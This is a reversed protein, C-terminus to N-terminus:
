NEAALKTLHPCGAAVAQEMLEPTIAPQPKRRYRIIADKPRSAGDNYRTQVNPTLLELDFQQLLLAVIVMMENNAFNMGTCKHIGGGFGTIAYRHHKDEERGPAFRLPDFSDPNAFVDPMNHGLTSSLLALWGAPIRYEGIEIEEEVYRMIMDASPHMRTTEHVAWLVHNLEGLTALDIPKGYPLTRELEALVRLLYSPHRVLEVITWAAQGVTTEHGAFMLGMIIGVIVEDEVPRGDKYTATAFEQLMDEHPEQAARRQAIIPTLIERMKLKARDRRRFKPLPLDPPLVPDLARSLDMYLGWFEDGMRDRFDKGMIAHAAVKQIPSVLAQAIDIEGSEGLSDLWLQIEQNMIRVYGPMKNGKFPAHLIHRQAFYSEPSAAFAVDGFSARLFTYAKDMRLAKDTNSFFAEQAEEGTLVVVNKPGLRISFVPGHQKFGRKLLRNRDRAFELMNGIVPAGAM